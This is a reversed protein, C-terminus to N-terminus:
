HHLETATNHSTNSKAIVFIWLEFKGAKKHPPRIIDILKYKGRGWEFILYPMVMPHAGFPDMESAGVASHSMSHEIFLLGNSRLQGVWTDLAKRPDFAQDLSNSYVFSFSEKWEPKCEHFDWQVTNAFDKATDSIETGVVQCGILRSLEAQEYGRRTGHCIGGKIQDVHSQIYKGIIALTAEDAWVRDLKRKNHFIQIDKYKEYGSVGYDHQYLMLLNKSPSIVLGFFSLLKNVFEVIRM